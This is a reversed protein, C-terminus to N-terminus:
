FVCLFMKCFITKEGAVRHSKKNLWSLRFTLIPKVYSQLTIKPPESIKNYKQVTNIKNGHLASRSTTFHSMLNKCGMFHLTQHQSVCCWVKVGQSFCPKVNRFVVDFRSATFCLRLTCVFFFGGICFLM